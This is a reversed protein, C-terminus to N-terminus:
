RWDIVNWINSFDDTWTRDDRPSLRQWLPDTATSSLDSESRALVAWHSSFSGEAAGRPTSQYQVRGALGLDRMVGAVVSRLDLHNNSIHIALIGGPNLRSLYLEVADRTLLHIPISDSSFADLVIVDHMAPRNQLSLRADGIVVECRTGCAALHSFYRTDRAIHEVEADIEYFTWRQGPQAYYALAGTGLGVAGVSKLSGAPRSALLQAVPSTVHYYTL